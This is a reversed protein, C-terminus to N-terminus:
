RPILVAGPPYLGVVAKVGDHGGATCTIRWSQRPLTMLIPPVKPGTVGFLLAPISLQSTAIAEAESHSFFVNWAITKKGLRIKNAFAM